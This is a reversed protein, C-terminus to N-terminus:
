RFRVPTRESFAYAADPDRPTIDAGRTGASSPTSWLRLTRIRETRLTVAM